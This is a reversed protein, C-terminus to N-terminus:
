YEWAGPSTAPAMLASFSLCDNSYTNNPILGYVQYGQAEAPCALFGDYFNLYGFQEGLPSSTTSFGTLVAGNPIAASHPLTYGLAGDSQVFVQQGGPVVVGMSLTWNGGTFVTSNGSPCNEAGINPPCYSSPGGGGIYLKGGRAQVPSLHIPSASRQAILGFYESGITRPATPAATVAALLTAFAATFKMKTTTTTTTTINSLSTIIRTLLLSISASHLAKGVAATAM